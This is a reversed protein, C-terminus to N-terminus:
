NSRTVDTARHSFPMASASVFPMGFLGPFVKGVNRCSLKVECRLYVAVAQTDVPRHRLQAPGRGRPLLAGSADRLNAV